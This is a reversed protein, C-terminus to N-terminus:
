RPLDSVSETLGALSMVGRVETRTLYRWRGRPVGEYTLGAYAVRDLQNVEYGLAEFMRHVQRNKGERLVIGIVKKKGAPIYHIEAPQTKGESLRVGAPLSPPTNAPFRSISPRGIPRKSKM